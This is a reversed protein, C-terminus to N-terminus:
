PFREAYGRYDSLLIAPIALRLLSQLNELQQLRAHNRKLHLVTEDRGRARRPHVEDREPGYLVLAHDLACATRPLKPVAFHIGRDGVHRLTCPLIAGAAENSEPGTTHQVLHHSSRSTVQDCATGRDPPM